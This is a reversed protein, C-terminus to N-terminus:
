KRIDRNAKDDPAKSADPQPLPVKPVEDKKDNLSEIKSNEISSYLKGLLESEDKRNSMVSINVLFTNELFILASIQYKSMSKLGENQSVLSYGYIKGGQVEVIDEKILSLSRTVNILKKLEDKTIPRSSPLFSIYVWTKGDKTEFRSKGVKQLSSPIEMTIEYSNSTGTATFKESFGDQSDNSWAVSCFILFLITVHIRSKM